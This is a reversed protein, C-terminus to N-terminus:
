IKRQQAAQKTQLLIRPKYLLWTVLLSEHDRHTAVKNKYYFDDMSVDLKAFPVVPQYSIWEDFYVRGSDARVFDARPLIYLSGEIWPGSNMTTKNLSYYHYRRGNASICGNRFSGAVKSRNLVAYFVSWNPDATAFVANVLKNNFLTQQRPEFRDIQKHNSGHFVYQESESLYQLFGLKPYPLDYVISQGASIQAALKEYAIREDEALRIEPSKSLLMSLLVFTM